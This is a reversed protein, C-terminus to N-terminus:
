GESERDTFTISEPPVRHMTGDKYEVLGYLTSIQGSTTGVLFGNTVYAESAWAHFYGEHTETKPEIFSPKKVRNPTDYIMIEVICPRLEDKSM